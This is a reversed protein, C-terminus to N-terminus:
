IGHAKAIAARAQNRAIQCRQAEDSDADATTPHALLSKLAALLDPAASILHANDQTDYHVQCISLRNSGLREDGSKWVFARPCDGEGFTATWPGPTHKTEMKM